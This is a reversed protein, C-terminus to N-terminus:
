SFVVCDSWPEAWPPLRMIGCVLGPSTFTCILKEESLCCTTRREMRSKKSFCVKRDPIWGIHGCQPRAMAAVGVVNESQPVSNLRVMRSDTHSQWISLRCCFVAYAEDLTNQSHPLSSAVSPDSGGSRSRVPDQFAQPAPSPILATPQESAALHRAFSFSTSPVRLRDTTPGVPGGNIGRQHEESGKWHKRRTHNNCPRGHTCARIADALDQLFFTRTMSFFNRTNAVQSIPSAMSKSRVRPYSTSTYGCGSAGGFLTIRSLTRDPTSPSIVVNRSWISASTNSAPFPFSFTTACIATPNSLMLRASAFRYLTGNVCVASTSVSAVASNANKMIPVSARFIHAASCRVRSFWHPYQCGYMGNRPSSTVPLVTATIPVPLIPSANMLFHTPKSM